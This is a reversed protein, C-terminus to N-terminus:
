GDLTVLASVGPAYDPHAAAFRFSGAAMASFTFAGDAGTVQADYREDAQQSWDSAGHFTVRAGAIPTGHDDVVKGTVPAGPALVLKASTEGAGVQIWTMSHALKDTWAAVQYGGPVVTTFITTGAKTTPQQQHDTGRLEVTAGEIPKGATDTVTVTVKAAPRLHLVVPESKDTLRATVPGAIGKDARAILTYPRGVLADFAFGGDAETTATRPPNSGLTVTAGGVPKDDADVVQGELRLAGRPDDDVLVPMAPGERDGRDGTPLKPKDLPKTTPTQSGAENPRSRHQVWFFIAAGVLIVVLAAGTVRTRM